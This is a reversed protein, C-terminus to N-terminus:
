LISAILARVQDIHFPKDCLADVGAAHVSALRQSDCESTVMLIPVDRQGSEQRVHTVLGDGNMRPMNYDTIVLDFTEQELIEVGHQGDEAFTLDTIGLQELVRGIHRRAFKSDDVVLVHLQEFAFTGDEYGLETVTAQLATGLTASDIPKQLLASLGAQRVRDLKSPDTESAVLLFAVGQTRRHARMREVLEAGSGDDFHFASMVVHPPQEIMATMAQEVSKASRITRVGVEEVRRKLVHQMTASPDAIMLDLDSVTLQM